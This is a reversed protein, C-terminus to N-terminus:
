KSEGTSYLFVMSAPTVRLVRDCKEILERYKENSVLEGSELRKAHALLRQPGCVDAHQYRSDYSPRSGPGARGEAQHPHARLRGSGLSAQAIDVQWDINTTRFSELAEKLGWM